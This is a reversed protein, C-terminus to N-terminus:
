FNNDKSALISFIIFRFITPELARHGRDSSSQNMNGSKKISPYIVWKGGSILDKKEWNLSPAAVTAGFIKEM